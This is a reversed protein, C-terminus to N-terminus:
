ATPGVWDDTVRGKAARLVITRGGLSGVDVHRSKTLKVLLRPGDRWCLVISCADQEIYSSEKLHYNEPGEEISYKERNLQSLAVVVIELEVALDRLTETLQGVIETMKEGRAFAHIHDVIVIKAGADAVSSRIVEVMEPVTLKNMPAFLLADNSFGPAIHKIRSKIDKNTQERSLFLVPVNRGANHAAIYTALQTKGQNTNAGVIVLDGPNFGLTHRDLTPFGFSYRGMRGFAPNPDDEVESWPLAAPVEAPGALQMEALEEFAQRAEDESWRYRDILRRGAQRNKWAQNGPTFPM